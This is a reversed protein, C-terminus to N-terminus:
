RTGDTVEEVKEWIVEKAVGESILINTIADYLPMRIDRFGDRLGNYFTTPRGPSIVEILRRRVEKVRAAPILGYGKSFFYRYHKAM